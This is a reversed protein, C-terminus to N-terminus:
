PLAHLGLAQELGARDLLDDSGYRVVEGLRAYYFAGTVHDLDVGILEAWALRYIALQLPDADPQANTKWDVVEYRKAGDAGTNAFVADIRGSFQQGGLVLSFPAEIQEPTRAAFESALFMEKLRDLEADTDIGADGRGPLDTPDFLGTMGYHDEIWAHFRTGFRAAPPPRRPMPRALQSAFEDRDRSLDMASTASMRTPWPVLRIDDADADAEALLLEIDAELRDLDLHEATDSRPPVRHPDGEGAARVAEALARRGPMSPLPAPWAIGEADVFHPNTEDSEPVPAWVLPERGQLELWEATSTLFESPGLPKQQTRGWQHGSLVLRSRARTYAVYGLRREEMKADESIERAHAKLAMPTWEALVPLSAADGRLEHPLATSSTWNDRGRGSPFITASMLPVYVTDWELGKARHITLLKVSNAQSPTAVDLGEAYFNEADLYAILGSLSAYRDNQAYSAIADLLLAVNDSGGTVHGAELEVDLDLARVARRAVDLLPDGVHSRVSRIVASVEAFRERAATSYALDGPDDVADSLSVVETPDTGEVAEALQEALTPEADEEREAGRILASARRGLLALDRPGIRWRPGTMLRLMAPNATVDEVLELVALIDLVEPQALLGDLGVIEFPIGAERLAAVIEGNERGVRVLIGIEKLRHQEHTRIDDVLAAIEDRVTPYMAVEVVGGPENASRLPQVAESTAYFPAALANAADIVEPACRRTELLSFQRGRSGDAAPFDDLFSELNGSAAGRWGYIAQAPDGVATIPHGAFLSQLLDRQAVSTDQYEDLLVVGFRERLDAGVEPLAALRAGWAMQDSFDLVGDDAKLERYRDVLRSLEIRVAAKGAADRLGAPKGDCRECLGILELDHRRLAETDVLHESLQGDLRMVGTVVAPVHTSVANLDGDYTAIARAARQFRTADDVIRLDPEVGLRLGHEAILSGAFAHYTSTTPEGDFSGGLRELSTRVRRGLEAAAKNTFTLGLIREPLVGEHGVLWVVRAAVVATKGSGAGAIIAVPRDLDATIAAQQEPTFEFGFVDYLGSVDSLLASV